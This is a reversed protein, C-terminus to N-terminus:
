SLTFLKPPIVVRNTSNRDIEGKCYLVSQNPRQPNYRIIVKADRPFEAIDQGAEANVRTATRAYRDPPGPPLNIKYKGTYRGDSISYEYKVEVHAWVVKSSVVIGQVEPWTLSREMLKEDRSDREANWIAWIVVFLIPWLPLLSLGSFDM